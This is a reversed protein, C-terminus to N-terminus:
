DHTTARRELREHLWDGIATVASATIALMLAPALISWANLQLLARNEAVMRGWDAAGPPVGLGLFSLASLAVLAASFELLLSTVVTPLVNPTIHVLMLRRDRLGLTRAAEVYPLGRQALVAARVIRTAGPAALLVLVAVAVWYSGSFLGVVVIIVLLAPVAYVFDTTRMIVEDVLGGRFGALLGLVLGVLTTGLAAVAPGLVATRTGAVLRAFIDRGLDDTGLWHASSPGTAGTLLHQQGPDQPVLAVGLVAALVVLAVVALSVPVVVGIRVGRVRPATASPTSM